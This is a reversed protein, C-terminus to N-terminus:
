GVRYWCVDAHRSVRGERYGSGVEVAL